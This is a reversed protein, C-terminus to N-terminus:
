HWFVRSIKYWLESKYPYASKIFIKLAEKTKGLQYPMLIMGM